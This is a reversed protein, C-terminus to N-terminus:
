ATPIANAKKYPVLIYDWDDIIGTEWDCSQKDICVEYLGDECDMWNKIRSNGNSDLFEGICDALVALSEPDSLRLQYTLERRSHLGRNSTWYSTKIRVVANGPGSGDIEPETPFPFILGKINNNM